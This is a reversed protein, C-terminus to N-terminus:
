RVRDRAEAAGAAIGGEGGGGTAGEGADVLVADPHRGEEDGAEAELAQHLAAAVGAFEELAVGGTKGLREPAVVV